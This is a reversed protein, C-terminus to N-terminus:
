MTLQQAYALKDKLIKHLKVSSDLFLIKPNANREVAYIADDLLAAISAVQEFDLVKTLNRATKLEEADMRINTDGTTKLVLYERLFHLAYRLFHKQNERGLGAFAETWKVLEVPHGKYCKRMWDLFRVSHDNIKANVLNLAENFNGNALRAMFAAREAQEPFRKKLAIAVEEDSLPNVRVMQCRSLITNLILAANEAVLIFHTGEPPEEIIKLLRNGEKALYEPLWIIMIKRNSEYTKLSLKSIIRLCEEKNINGQKNEAGILQLWQNVNMYPNDSLASRWQTLFQDSTARAGIVPFAFHLDPHILKETKHCSNCQGCVQGQRPQECLLYQALALAIALKGSGEPGLLLLAHPLRDQGALALLHALVEKQGVINHVLM